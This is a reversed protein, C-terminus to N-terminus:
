EGTPRGTGGFRYRVGFRGITETYDAANDIILRGELELQEALRYNVDGGFRYSFQVTEQGAYTLTDEVGPDIIIDPDGPTLAAIAAATRAPDDPYFAVQDEDFFQIGVAGNVGYSLQGTSGRYEVPVSASIFTQPSFYGGHGTTFFRRNEDFGFLTTNYGVQLSRDEEQIPYFYFGGTLEAYNNTDTDRGDYVALGGGVYVGGRGFDRVVNIKGGTRTIAGFTEGTVPDNAGAYSLVSDTVARRFFEGTLFWGDAVENSYSLGGVLNVREFGLPTIGVDASLNGRTMGASVGIGAAAEDIVLDPDAVLNGTVTGAAGFRQLQSATQLDGRASLFTPTVQVYGRAQNTPNRGFGFAYRLETKLELLESFGAEGTRTRFGPALSGVNEVQWRLDTLRQGVPDTPPTLLEFRAASSTEFVNDRPALPRVGSSRGVRESPDELFVQEPRRNRQSLPSDQLRQQAGSGGQGTNQQRREPRNQQEQRREEDALNRLLRRIRESSDTDRDSSNQALIISPEETGDEAPGAARRELTVPRLRLRDDLDPAGELAMDRDLVASPTATRLGSPVPGTSALTMGQWNYGASALRRELSGLWTNEAFQYVRDGTDLSAGDRERRTKIRQAEELAEIAAFKDGAALAVDAVLMYLDPEDPMNTLASDLIDTASRIDGAQISSGVAGKIAFLDLRDFELAQAYYLFAREPLDARQHLEGALRLIDGDERGPELFPQLVDFARAYQRQDMLERVRVLVSSRRMRSLEIDLDEPLDPRKKLEAILDNAEAREGAEGLIQAMRLLTDASLDSLDGSRRVRQLLSVATAPAGAQVYVDAIRVLRVTDDSNESQLEALIRRALIPEGSLAEFQADTLKKSFVAETLLDQDGSKREGAPISELLDIARDWEQNTLAYISLAVKTENSLPVQDALTRIVENANRVEGLQNLLLAYDLKLWPDDTIQRQAAELEQRALQFNGADKAEQARDRLLAAEARQLGLAERDEASLRRGMTVADEFRGQEQYINVLGAVILPEEGRSEFLESYLEEAQELEGMDAYIGALVQKAYHADDLDLDVIEFLIQEAQEFNGAERADLAEHYRRWFGAANFAETVTPVIDADAEAAKIFAQEALAFDELRLRAFGLGAYANADDPNERLAQSFSRVADDLRAEFLDAYGQNVLATANDILPPSVVRSLKAQVEVDNPYLDLFDEYIPQDELRGGLWLLGNRYADLAKETRISSKLFPRLIKLGERRTEERYTLVEGLTIIARRDDPSLEVERRLGRVSEEWRGEVGAMTHYYEIALEGQPPNRGFISEYRRLAEVGEGESALRRAQALFEGQDQYLRIMLLLREILDESANTEQLRVVYLRAEEIDGSKAKHRGLNFLAKENDEDINLLKQLAEYAAAQNYRNEWYRAQALLHAELAEPAAPEAPLPDSAGGFRSSAQFGFASLSSNGAQAPEPCGLSVVSVGALGLIMGCVSRHAVMLAGRAARRPSLIPARPDNRPPLREDQHPRQM